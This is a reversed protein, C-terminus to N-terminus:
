AIAAEVDAGSEDEDAGVYSMELKFRELNQLDVKGKSTIIGLSLYVLAYDKVCREITVLFSLAVM